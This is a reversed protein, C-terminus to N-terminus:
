NKRCGNRTTETINPSLNLTAIAKSPDEGEKEGLVLCFTPSKVIDSAGGKWLDVIVQGKYTRGKELFFLMPDDDQGGWGKEPFFLFNTAYSNDKEIAFASVRSYGAINVPSEDLPVNLLKEFTADAKLRFYGVDGDLNCNQDRECVRLRVDKVVKFSNGSNHFLLNLLIKDGQNGSIKARTMGVRHTPPSITVVGPDFAQYVSFLLTVISIIIAIASLFNPVLSSNNKLWGVAV